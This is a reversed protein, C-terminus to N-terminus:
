KEELAKKFNIADVNTGKHFSAICVNYEKLYIHYCGDIDKVIRYKNLESIHQNQTFFKSSCDQCVNICLKKGADKLCIFCKM